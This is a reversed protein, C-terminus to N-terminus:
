ESSSAPVAAERVWPRAVEPLPLGYPNEEPARESATALGSTSKTFVMTRNPNGGGGPPPVVTKARPLLSQIRSRSRGPSHFFM